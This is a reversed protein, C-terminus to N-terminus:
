LLAGILLGVVFCAAGIVVYPKAAEIGIRVGPAVQEVRGSRQPLSAGEFEGIASVIEAGDDATIITAHRSM